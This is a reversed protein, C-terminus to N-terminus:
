NVQIFRRVRVMVLKSFKVCVVPKTATHLIPVTTKYHASQRQRDFAAGVTATPPPHGDAILYRGPVPAAIHSPPLLTSTM